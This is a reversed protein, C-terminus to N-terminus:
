ELLNPADELYRRLTLTHKGRKFVVPRPDLDSTCVRRGEERLKPFPKEYAHLSEQDGELRWMGGLPYQVSWQVLLRRAKPNRPLHIELGIEETKGASPPVSM